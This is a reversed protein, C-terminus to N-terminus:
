IELLNKVNAEFCDSKPVPPYLTKPVVTTSPAQYFEIKKDFLLYQYGVLLIM